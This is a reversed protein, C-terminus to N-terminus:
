NLSAEIMPGTSLFEEFETRTLKEAKLRRTRSMLTLMSKKVKEYVLDDLEQKTMIM